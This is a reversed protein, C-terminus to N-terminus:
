LYHSDIILLIHLEVGEPVLCYRRNRRIPYWTKFYLDYVLRRVPEQNPKPRALWTHDLTLPAVWSYDPVFETAEGGFSKRALRSAESAM